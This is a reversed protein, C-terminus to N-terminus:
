CMLKRGDDAREPSIVTAGVIWTRPEAATAANLPAQWLALVLAAGCAARHLTLSHGM